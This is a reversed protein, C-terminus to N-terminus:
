ALLSLEGVFFSLVNLKISLNEEATASSGEFFLLTKRQCNNNQAFM